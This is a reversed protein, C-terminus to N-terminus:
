EQNGKRNRYSLHDRLKKKTWHESVNILAQLALSIQEETPVINVLPNIIALEEQTIQHRGINTRKPQPEHALYLHPQNNYPRKETEKVTQKQKKKLQKQEKEAKKLTTVKSVIVDKSRRGTTDITELKLIEQRFIKTLCQKGTEYCKYLRQFGLLTCEPCNQFLEHNNVQFAEVLKDILNWLVEHRNKVARDMKSTVNDEIFESFLLDMREKESQASKIHRKLNDESVINGTMNEKIFKVGFTELAEDFAFYHGDRTLNVSGAYNM